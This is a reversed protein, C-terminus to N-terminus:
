EILSNYYVLAHDIATIYKGRYNVLNHICSQLTEKHKIWDAKDRKMLNVAFDIDEKSHLDIAMLQEESAYYTQFDLLILAKERANRDINSLLIRKINEDYSSNTPELSPILESIRKTRYISLGERCGCYRAHAAEAQLSKKHYNLEFRSIDHRMIDRAFQQWEYTYQLIFTFDQHYNPACFKEDVAYISEEGMINERGIMMQLMNTMHEFAKNPFWQELKAWGGDDTYNFQGYNDLPANQTFYDHLNLLQKIDEQYWDELRSIRIDNKLGQIQDSINKVQQNITLTHALINKSSELLKQDNFDLKEFWEEQKAWNELIAGKLNQISEYLKEQNEALLQQREDLNKFEERFEDLMAAQNKIIMQAKDDLTKYWEQQQVWIEEIRDNMQDIGDMAQKAMNVFNDFQEKCKKNEPREGECDECKYSLEGVKEMALECYQACCVPNGGVQVWTPPGCKEVKATLLGKCTAQTCCKM